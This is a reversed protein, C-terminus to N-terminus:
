KANNNNLATLQIQLIYTSSLKWLGYPLSPSINNYLETQRNRGLSKQRDRCFANRLETEAHGKGYNIVLGHMEFSNDNRLLYCM